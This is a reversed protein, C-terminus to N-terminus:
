VLMVNSIASKMKLFGFKELLIDSSHYRFSPFRCYSQLEVKKLNAHYIRSVVAMRSHNQEFFLKKEQRDIGKLTLDGM